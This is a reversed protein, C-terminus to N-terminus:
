IVEVLGVAAAQIPQSQELFPLLSVLVVEVAELMLTQVQAELEERTARGQQEQAELSDMLAVVVELVAM